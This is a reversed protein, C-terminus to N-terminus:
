YTTLKLSSLINKFSELPSVNEVFMNIINNINIKTKPAITFIISMELSFFM